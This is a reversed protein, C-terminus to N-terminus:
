ASARFRCVRVDEPGDVQWILFDALNFCFVVLQVVLNLCLPCLVLANQHLQPVLLRLEFLVLALPVQVVLLSNFAESLLDLFGFDEILLNDLVVNVSERSEFEFFAALLLLKFLDAM